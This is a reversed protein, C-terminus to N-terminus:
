QECLTPAGAQRVRPEEEESSLLRLVCTQLRLPRNYRAQNYGRLGAGIEQGIQVCHMNRKEEETQGIQQACM